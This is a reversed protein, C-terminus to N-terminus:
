LNRFHCSILVSIIIKMVPVCRSRTFVYTEMVVGWEALTDDATHIALQSSLMLVRFFINDYM